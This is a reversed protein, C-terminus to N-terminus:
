RKIVAIVRAITEAITANDTKGQLSDLIGKVVATTQDAEANVVAAQSQKVAIIDNVIFGRDEVGNITGVKIERDNSTISVTIGFHERSSPDRAVLKAQQTWDTDGHLYVYAAGQETYTGTKGQAGVVAYSGDGSVAVSCGFQDGVAPDSALLKAQQTWTVGNKKFIYAAGQQAHTGTKYHAGVVAYSGDGSIAVSHGFFDSDAADGAVLKAQQTWTTGSRTFIYAAGQDSYTGTNYCAGVVAYSGDGSVAVSWGFFDGGAADSALLKAQQTWTTGTRLFIYAAGQGSYTGSKSRAGVVAYSGDGSVAVSYGFYDNRADDSALLKAQQTWTVGSRLFIYVAGQYSYTGTKYCAGVVAYSGDSSIAVSCGFGDPDNAATADSAVLKYQLVWATGTRVFIYAVDQSGDAYSELSNCGAIAYNGDASFAYAVNRPLKGDAEVGLLSEAFEASVEKISKLM